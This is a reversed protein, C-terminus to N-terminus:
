IQQETRERGQQKWCYVVGGSTSMVESRSV